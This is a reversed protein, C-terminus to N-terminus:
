GRREMAVDVVDRGWGEYEGQLGTYLNGLDSDGNIEIIRRNGLWPATYHERESRADHRDRCARAQGLDAHKHGCGGSGPGWTTYRIM